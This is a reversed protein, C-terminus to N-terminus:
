YDIRKKCEVKVEELTNYFPSEEMVTDDEYRIEAYFSKGMLIGFNIRVEQFIVVRFGKYTFDSFFKTTTM